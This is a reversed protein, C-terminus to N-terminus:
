GREYKNKIITKIINDCDIEKGSYFDLYLPCQMCFGICTKENTEIDYDIPFEDEEYLRIKM